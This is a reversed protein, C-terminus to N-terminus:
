VEGEATNGPVPCTTLAVVFAIGPDMREGVACIVCQRKLAGGSVDVIERGVIPAASSSALVCALLLLPLIGFGFM